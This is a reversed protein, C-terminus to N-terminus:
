HCCDKCCKRPIYKEIQRVFENQTGVMDNKIKCACM